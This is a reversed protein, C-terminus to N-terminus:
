IPSRAIPSESNRLSMPNKNQQAVAKRMFDSPLRPKHREQRVLLKEPEFSASRKEDCQIIHQFEPYPRKEIKFNTDNRVDRYTAYGVPQNMIPDKIDLGVIQM